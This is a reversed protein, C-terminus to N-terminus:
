RALPLRVTFSAGQGVASQVKITGGCLDLIRKVLSLGLGNGEACRASDGQYFKEFIHKITEESMGVGTDAIRLVVEQDRTSMEVTIAGGEPTFKIANAILNLWVQMLLEESAVCVCPDLDIELELGKASWRPELLLIAQRVQEDIQFAAPEAVIAQNELKSIQLVNNCLTSLQRTSSIIMGAYEGREEMTLYEDQMLTAYGEIAALPTKFEHSVNVIFDDRLTNIGSLEHAMKNFNASMERLERFRHKEDLRVSFDGKAVAQEAKSLETIPKIVRKGFVSSLITGVAVNALLATIFVFKYNHPVVEAFDFTRLLTLVLLLGLVIAAAALMVGFVYMVFYRGLRSFPKKDV